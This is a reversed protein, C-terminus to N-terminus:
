KLSSISFVGGSDRIHSRIFKVLPSNELVRAKLYVSSLVLTHTSISNRKWQAVQYKVLSFMNLCVFEKDVLLWSNVAKQRNGLVKRLNESLQGFTLCDNGFM